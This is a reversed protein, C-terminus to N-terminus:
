ATTIRILALPIGLGIFTICWVTVNDMDDRDLARPTWFAFFAFAVLYLIGLLNRMREDSM